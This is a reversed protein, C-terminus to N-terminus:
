LLPRAARRSYACGSPVHTRRAAETVLAQPNGGAQARGEHHREVGAV